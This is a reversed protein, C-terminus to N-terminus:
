RMNGCAPLARPPDDFGWVCPFFKEGETRNVCCQSYLPADSGEMMCFPVRKYALLRHTEAVFSADRAGDGWGCFRDAVEELEIVPADAHEALHSVIESATVRRGAPLSARVVAGSVHRAVRPNALFNPERVSVNLASPEFWKPTDLVHDM